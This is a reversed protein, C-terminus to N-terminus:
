FSVKGKKEKFSGSHGANGGKGGDGNLGPNDWCTGAYGGHGGNGGRVDYQFNHPTSVSPDVMLTITGGDGGPGGLGGDGAAITASDHVDDGNGGHGGAGGRSSVSMSGGAAIPYYTSNIKYLHVKQGTKPHTVQKLEVLVDPGTGGAGADTGPKGTVGDDGSRGSFSEGHSNGYYVPGEIVAEGVGDFKSKVKLRLQNDSNIDRSINPTFYAGKYERNYAGFENTMYKSGIGGVGGLITSGSVLTNEVVELDEMYANGGLNMTKVTEGSSLEIVFGVEFKQRDVFQKPKGQPFEVTIKVVKKGELTYKARHQRQEEAIAERDADVKEGRYDLYAQVEKIADKISTKTGYIGNIGDVRYTTPNVSYNIIRTPSLYLVKMHSISYADKFDSGRYSYTTYKKGDQLIETVNGNADKIFKFETYKGFPELMGRESSSYPKWTSKKGDEWGKAVEDVPMTHAVNAATSVTSTDGKVKTKLKNFKEKWKQAQVQSIGLCVMLSLLLWYKM